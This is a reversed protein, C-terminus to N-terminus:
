GSRLWLSSPYHGEGKKPALGAELRLPRYDPLIAALGDPAANHLASQCCLVELESNGTLLAALLASEQWDWFDSLIWPSYLYPLYVDHIQILIGPALSPLVELYLRGLESGAKVAHTSDIFLLDGARLQEFVSAKVCQAPQALVEVGPLGALQRPAYPDVAVIRSAGRGDAVNRAAADAILATSAGSGVEVVLPPALTRVVCHLVQGEILGYRFKIEQMELKALYSFGTVEHLYGTCCHELWALQAELNSVIGPVDTRHRWQDPHRRLWGRDPVSSYFHRPLVHIHMREMALFIQFLAPKILLGRPNLM